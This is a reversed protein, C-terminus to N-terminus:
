RWQLTIKAADVLSVFTKLGESLSMGVRKLEALSLYALADFKDPECITPTGNTKALFWHYTMLRGDTFSASGLERVIEVEVGLEERLERVAADANSEGPEVKGGPVEWHNYKETNRHLLLIRGQEDLLICGALELANM